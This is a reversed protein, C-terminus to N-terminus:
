RNAELSAMADRLDGLSRPRRPPEEMRHLRGAEDRSYLAMALERHLMLGAPGPQLAYKSQGLSTLYWGGEIYRLFLVCQEGEEFLADGPIRSTIGDLTGGMQEIEVSKPATGYLVEDIQFSTYTMPRQYRPHVEQRASGVTAVVVASSLRAQEADTFYLVSTGSASALPTLVLAALVLFRLVEPM